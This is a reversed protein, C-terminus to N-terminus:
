LMVTLSEIIKKSKKDIYYFKNSHIQNLLVIKNSHSKIKSEIIALNELITKKNDSSGPRCNLSRFMGVSKKDLRSFFAHEITKFKLLKKSRILKFVWILNIKKILWM